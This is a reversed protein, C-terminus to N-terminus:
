LVLVDSGVLFGQDSFDNNLHVAKSMGFDALHIGVVHDETAVHFANGVRRFKPISDSGVDVHQCWLVEAFGVLDVWDNFGGTQWRQEAILHKALLGGAIPCSM